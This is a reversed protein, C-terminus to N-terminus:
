TILTGPRSGGVAREPQVQWAAIFESVQDRSVRPLFLNNIMTILKDLATSREISPSLTKAYSSLLYIWILDCQQSSSIAPNSNAIINPNAQNPSLLTDGKATNNYRAVKSALCQFCLAPPESARDWREIMIDTYLVDREAGTELHGYWEKLQKQIEPAGGYKTELGDVRAAAEAGGYLKVLAKLVEAVKTWKTYEAARAADALVAALTTKTYVPKALNGELYFKVGAIGPVGGVCYPLAEEWEPWTFSPIPDLCLLADKYISATSSPPLLIYAESAPLLAFSLDIRVFSLCVTRDL